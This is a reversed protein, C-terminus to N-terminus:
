ALDGQGGRTARSIGRIQKVKQSWPPIPRDTGSCGGCGWPPYIFVRHIPRETLMVVNSHLLPTMLDCELRWLLFLGYLFGWNSGIGGTLHLEM